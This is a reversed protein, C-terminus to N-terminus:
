LKQVNGSGTSSTNTYAPNGGFRLNGSGSVRGTLSDTAFVTADGSGSVTASVTKAHLGLMELNGSGSVIATARATAPLTSAAGQVALSGSGSVAIDAQALPSSGSLAIECNGSGEVQAILSHTRMGVTCNGSGDLFVRYSTASSDIGVMSINGSGLLSIDNLNGYYVDIKVPGRNHLTSRQGITLLGNAVGINLKAIINTGATIEVRPDGSQNPHLVVDAATNLEVKSFAGVTRVETKVTGDKQCSTLSLILLLCLPLIAKM